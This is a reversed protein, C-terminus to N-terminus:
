KMFEKVDEGDIGNCIDDENMRRKMEMIKANREEKTKGKVGQWPLEGKILYM